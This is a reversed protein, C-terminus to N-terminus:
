GEVREAARGHRVSERRESAGEEEADVHLLGEEVFDGAGFAEDGADGEGEFGGADEAEVDGEGLLDRLIPGVIGESVLSAGL